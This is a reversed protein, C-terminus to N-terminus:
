TLTALTQRPGCLAHSAHLSADPVQSARTTGSLALPCTLRAYSFRFNLCTLPFGSV